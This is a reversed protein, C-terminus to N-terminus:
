LLTFQSKPFHILEMEIGVNQKREPKSITYFYSQLIHFQTWIESLLTM